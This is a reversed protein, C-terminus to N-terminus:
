GEYRVPAADLRVVLWKLTEFCWLFGPTFTELRPYDGDCLGSHFLADDFFHKGDDLADLLEQHKEIRDLYRKRDKEPFEVGDSAAEEEDLKLDARYERIRSEAWEKAVDASWERVKVGQAKGAVYDLDNHCRRFWEIMDLERCLILEGIDGTVIVRGPETIVNFAYMGTGPRACRWHRYLGQGVNQTVVHDAFARAALEHIQEIRKRECEYM